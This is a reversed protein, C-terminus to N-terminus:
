IRIWIDKDPSVTKHDVSEFEHFKPKTVAVVIAAAVWIALILAFGLVRHDIGGTFSKDAILLTSAILALSATFLPYTLALRRLLKVVPSLLVAILAVIFISSNVILDDLKEEFSM